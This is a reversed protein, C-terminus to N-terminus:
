QHLSTSCHPLPPGTPPLAGTDRPGAGPGSQDRAGKLVPVTEQVDARVGDFPQVVQMDVGDDDEDVVLAGFVDLLHGAGRPSAAPPAAPEPVLATPTPTSPHSPRYTHSSSGIERERPCHEGPM